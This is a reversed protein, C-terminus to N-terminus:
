EKTLSTLQGESKGWLHTERLCLEHAPSTANLCARSVMLLLCSLPLSPSLKCTVITHM